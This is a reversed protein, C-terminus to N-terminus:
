TVNDLAKKCKKCLNTKNKLFEISFRPLLLSDVFHEWENTLKIKQNCITYLTSLCDVDTIHYTDRTKKKTLVLKM